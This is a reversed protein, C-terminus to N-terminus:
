IHKLPGGLKKLLDVEGDRGELRILKQEQSALRQRMERGPPSFAFDAARRTYTDWDRQENPRAARAGEKIAKAIAERSHSTVAMRVAIEADLRSPDARRAPQERLIADLHRRYIAAPTMSMPRRDGAARADPKRETRLRDREATIAQQLDPNSIKFGHEAALEVCTRKFQEDGRITFTGWKQASLQLAALVAERNRGDHIDITKGRDTFSPSGRSSILHYHVRSGDLVARVARIDHPTPQNFTAGEITTPRRTRHRWKDGADRDFRALWEEYSPFRGRDRRLAVRELKHRDHLDAKEQAQRAATLSRLANLADGKGKWSGRFMDAREKRHRDALQRWEDRQRGVGQDQEARQGYHKSRQELYSALLPAAPDLPRPLAAKEPPARRPPAPEFDGLRKRLASMSCDRGAVSAKVPQDGIWLLAGSGKKEFRVGAKGLAEHLERWSGARRIIPAAEEIAGREASRAGVREEFAMARAGPQREAEPREVPKLEGSANPVYLAHAEPEWRQRLEIRAIARHAVRHDYGKNVTILKESEPHVRNFALHLHWNHTDSHLAYIAQYDSLGMEGLFMRVAEDAQAPTPQEGERWSLIWHQVPKADRRAAEALDVMEQVQGDHDDALFNLGGRYEVKEGDGGAAPGAIYDALDRVNAALSKPAALKSPPVKKVIV